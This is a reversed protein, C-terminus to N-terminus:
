PAQPHRMSEPPGSPMEDGRGPRVDLRTHASLSLVYAVLQWIQESSLHSAFAPMGKARGGAIVSYVVDPDAGSSWRPGMLPPGMGGGGHGHCGVCNYWGYLRKGQAVAYANALDPHRPRPNALREKWARPSRLIPRPPGTAPT